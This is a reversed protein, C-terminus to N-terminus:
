TAKVKCTKIGLLTYLPCVSVLSTVTFIAALILGVVGVTGTLIQTFYLVVLVAAILLRISKDAPGMNKKM